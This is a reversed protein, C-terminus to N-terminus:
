ENDYLVGELIDECARFTDIFVTQMKGDPGPVQVPTHRNEASLQLYSELPMRKVEGIETEEDHLAKLLEAKKAEDEIDKTLETEQEALDKIAKGILKRFRMAYVAHGVPIDHETTNLLGANVLRLIISNKLKM